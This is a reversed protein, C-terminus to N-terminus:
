VIVTLTPYDTANEFSYVSMYCRTGSGNDVCMIALNKGETTGWASRNVIEQVASTVDVTIEQNASWATAYNVTTFNSTLTRSNLDNYSTPAVVDGGTLQCGFKWKNPQRGGGSSTTKMTIFASIITDGNNVDSDLTFPIWAKSYLWYEGQNYDDPCGFLISTTTNYFHSSSPTLIYADYASTDYVFTGGQPIATMENVSMYTPTDFITFIETEIHPQVPSINMTIPYNIRATPFREVFESSLNIPIDDTLFVNRQLNITTM